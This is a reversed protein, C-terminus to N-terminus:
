ARHHRHEVMTEPQHGRLLRQQHLQQQVDDRDMLDALSIGTLFDQLRESLDWWMDNYLSDEHQSKPPRTVHEEHVALIIDEISIKDAPKALRYGGGPGRVGSVLKQGRLGALLQELYSPSIGQQQTLQSLTVPRADPSLALQLMSQIAYRAKSSIKM